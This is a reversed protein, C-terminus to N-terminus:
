GTSQSLRGHGCQPKSLTADYGCLWRLPHPGDARLLRSEPANGPAIHQLVSHLTALADQSAVFGGQPKGHCAAGGCRNMLVRHVSRADGHRVFAEDDVGGCVRMAAHFEPANDVADSDIDFVFIQDLYRNAVFSTQGDASFTMGECYFDAPIESVVTDNRTDIVSIFNSFRNTVLLFRGGPHMALRYPSSGPPGPEERPKLQLRKVVQEKRVDYVAVESGPQLETGQLAIYVKTGAPNIEVDFPHDRRPQPEPAPHPNAVPTLNQRRYAEGYAWRRSTLIGFPSPPTATDLAGTEDLRAGENSAPFQEQALVQPTEPGILAIAMALAAWIQGWPCSGGQRRKGAPLMQPIRGCGLEATTTQCTELRRM